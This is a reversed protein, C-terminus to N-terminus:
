KELVDCSHQPNTVMHATNAANAAAKSTWGTLYINEDNCVARYRTARLAAKKKSASKKKTAKKKPAVKKKSAKKQAPKKKM